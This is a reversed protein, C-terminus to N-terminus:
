LSLTPGVPVGHTSEDGTVSVRLADMGWGEDPWGQWGRGTPTIRLTLSPATHALTLLSATAMDVLDDSFFRNSDIQGDNVLLTGGDFDVVTGSANNTTMSLLLRGDIYLNLDDRAVTGNRSDWSNLFGLLLDVNVGTHVPLGTLTLTASAGNGNFYNGAWSKGLSGAYPGASVAGVFGGTLSASVGAAKFAPTDFNNSYILAADSQVSWLAVAMMSGALYRRM